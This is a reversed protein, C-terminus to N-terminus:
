EKELMISNKNQNYFITLKRGSINFNEAKEIQHFMMAWQPENIETSILNDIVIKNESMISYEGSFQNTVNKGSITGKSSSSNNFNVSIDGNNFDYWTNSSNKTLSTKLILDNYSVVKWTGNLASASEIEKKTCSMFTIGLSILSIIFIKISKM